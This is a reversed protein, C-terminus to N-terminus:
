PETYLRVMDGIQERRECRIAFGNRLV